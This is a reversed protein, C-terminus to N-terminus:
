AVAAKEDSDTATQTEQDDDEGEDDLSATEADSGQAPKAAKAHPYWATLGYTGNPLKHFVHSRKRLMARLGVLAVDANTTEFQFGGSVVADYIERPKAPGQGRARRMELYERSATQLRKGYFTDPKIETPASGDNGGDGGGTPLPPMGAEVLLLNLAGRIQNVNREADALKSRFLDIAPMLEPKMAIAGRERSM